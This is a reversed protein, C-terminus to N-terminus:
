LDSDGQNPRDPMLPLNDIWDPLVKEFWIPIARHEATEVIVTATAGMLFPHAPDRETFELRVPFRQALRVWDLTPDPAALVGVDHSQPGKVARGIGQVVAKFPREPYAMLYVRAAMGPQIYRLETEMYNAMVFWQSDDVVAFLHDGQKAFAGPSLNMNTVYGDVPSRVTCYELNLKAAEVRAQASARRVNVNGMLGLANRKLELDAEAALVNSEAIRKTRVAKDVADPSVFQRSRLPELRELYSRAYEAEARSSIVQAEAAMIAAQSERIQLEVLELNAGANALEIEYPRQDIVFLLDGQAVRTNDVVAVKAIYGDVKAAISVVNARVAADDTRPYTRLSLFVALSLYIAAAVIAGGVARGLRQQTRETMAQLGGALSLAHVGRLAGRLDVRSPRHAARSRHAPDGHASGLGDVSGCVHLVDM